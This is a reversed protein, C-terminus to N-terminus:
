LKTNSEIVAPVSSLLNHGQWENFYIDNNKMCLVLVNNYYKSVPNINIYYVKIGPGFTNILKFPMWDFYDSRDCNRIVWNKMDGPLISGDLGVVSIPAPIIDAPNRKTIKAWKNIYKKITM